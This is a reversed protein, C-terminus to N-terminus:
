PVEPGHKHCNWVLMHEPEDDVHASLAMMHPFALGHTACVWNGSALTDDCKPGVKYRDGLFDYEFGEDPQLIMTEPM